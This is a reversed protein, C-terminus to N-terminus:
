NNNCTSSSLLGAAVSSCCSEGFSGLGSRSTDLEKGSASTSDGRITVGIDRGRSSANVGTMGLDSGLDLPLQNSAMVM